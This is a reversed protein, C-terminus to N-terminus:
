RTASRSRRHKKYGGHAFRQGWERGGDRDYSIHVHRVRAYDTTYGGPWDGLQAYICAPNGQMDIAKGTAHLSMRRTGAIRTRRVASVVRAGPCAAVIEAAKAALPAVIASLSLRPRVGERIIDRRLGPLAGMPGLCPMTVNCEAHLGALRGADNPKAHAATVLACLALAAAIPSRLM